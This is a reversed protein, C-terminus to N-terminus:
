VAHISWEDLNEDYVLDFVLDQPTRVRFDVGGPARWRSLIEAVELRQGQWSFAVPREAYSASSRCEVIVSTEM